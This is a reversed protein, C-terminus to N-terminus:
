KKNALLITWPTPKRIEIVNMYKNVFKEFAGASWHRCHGPTDGCNRWYKGRAMNMMRWLPERPVSLIAGVRAVRQIERMADEAYKIHELMEIGLILDIGNDPLPIHTADSVFISCDRAKERAKKSIHYDIDSGYIKTNKDREELQSLIYGEGCGVELVNQFNVNQLLDDIAGLFSRMLHREIPNKSKFKDYVHGAPGNYSQRTKNSM